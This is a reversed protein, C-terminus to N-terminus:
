IVKIFFVFKVVQPHLSPLGIQADDVSAKDNTAPPGHTGAGVSRCANQTRAEEGQCDGCGGGRCDSPGGGVAIGVGIGVVASSSSEAKTKVTGSQHPSVASLGISPDYHLSSTFALFQLMLLYSLMGNLVVSHQITTVIGDIVAVNFVEIRALTTASDWFDWHQNTKAM